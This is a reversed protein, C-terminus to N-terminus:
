SEVRSSATSASDVRHERIDDLFGYDEQLAANLFGREAWWLHIAKPKQRVIYCFICPRFRRNAIHQQAQRAASFREDLGWPTANRSRHRAWV